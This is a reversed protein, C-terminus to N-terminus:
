VGAMRQAVQATDTLHELQGILDILATAREAPLLSATFRRFKECAEDWTFPNRPSGKHPQTHLIYQQGAHELHIEALLAEPGDHPADARPQLEIRQALDRVVPDWLAEDNYTLPDSLDRTLAVATTFPLSYQGGMLSEPARVAHREEMLRPAGYIVVRTIARPTLPHTRKWAQIAQVVAQHTVHTAYSKLSPPQIAWTTGLGDLLREMRPPLSFANFYGYRGELVTDPGRLGQRALLASELGLQSARGLHLRKTDAGSWAFELLGASCSGALGMANSLMAQDGGYLKGVAVAAGFPGQTGPNHFGRVNELGVATRAIRASVEFGLALATLLAQGSLHERQSVALAAPFVTGAAHSGTLPECEFAGILVGNALAARSVDTQWAQQIVSAEPTGGLAQIMALVRQTWPQVAGVCAAGLTDLVTLKCEDVLSSPLDTFQTQAVFQALTQTEHMPSRVRPEGDTHRGHTRCWLRSPQSALCFDRLHVVKSGSAFRGEQTQLM